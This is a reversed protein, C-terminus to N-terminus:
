QSLSRLVLERIKPNEQVFSVNAVGARYEDRRHIIVEKAYQTLFVAESLASDGGGVVAVVKDRFLAGDCTACFGIGKALYEEEGPM